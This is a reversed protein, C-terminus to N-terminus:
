KTARKYTITTRRDPLLMIKDDGVFAVTMRDTKGPLPFRFSAKSGEAQIEADGELPNGMGASTIFSVHSNSGFELKSGVWIRGAKDTDPEVSEGVWQGQLKRSAVQTLVNTPPKCAALGTLDSAGLACAKAEASWAQGVCASKAFRQEMKFKLGFEEIPADKSLAKLKTGIADCDTETAKPLSMWAAVDADVFVSLSKEARARGALDSRHNQEHRDSEQTRTEVFEKLAKSEEPRLPEHISLRVVAGSRSVSMGRMARMFADFAAKWFDDRVYESKARILKAMEPESNALQARWDRVLNRLDKEVDRAADEDRALLVFGMHYAAAKALIDREVAIGRVKTVISDLLKEQGKPFCADLFEKKHEVPGTVECPSAWPIADPKATIEIVDADTTSAITEQLIDVTTTLDNRVSTYARAFAEM